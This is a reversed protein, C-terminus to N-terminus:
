RSGGWSTIRHHPPPACAGVSTYLSREWGPLQVLRNEEAFSWVLLESMSLGYERWAEDVYYAVNIIRPGEFTSVTHLQRVCKPCM